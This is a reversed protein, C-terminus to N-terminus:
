GGGWVEESVHNHDEGEDGHCTGTCFSGAANWTVGPANASFAVDRAGNVHLTATAISGGADTDVHCDVCSVGEEAHTAHRGSLAGTNPQETGPYAHCGGCSPTPLDHSYVGSDTRGNGHCYLSACTGAGDWTAAASLGGTFVVEGKGASGDFIHGESLVDMPKTHCQVCDYAPHDLEIVHKPHAIFSLLSVETIEDIDRPPAGTQDLEGGHCYVCETRWATPDDNGAVKHCSDCSVAVVGGTLDAGHCNRCDQVQLKLEPGHMAPDAFGEPHYLGNHGTEDAGSSESGNATSSGSSSAGESGDGHGSSDGGSSDAGSPDLTTCGFLGLLVATAALGPCRSITRADENRSTHRPDAM